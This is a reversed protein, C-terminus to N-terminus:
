RKPTRIAALDRSAIRGDTVFKKLHDQVKGVIQVAQWLRERGESEKWHTLKWAAIYEDHLTAFCQKLLENDLLSQAQASLVLKKNLTVEDAM